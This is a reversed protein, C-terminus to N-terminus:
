AAIIEAYMAPDVNGGSLVAVVNQAKPQIKAAMLAAVAVAGSPEVTLKALMCLARMAERIEDDSVLVLEDVLRAVIEFNLVGLSSTRLGDAITNITDVRVRNGTKLSQYADAAGEPEVGVIRVDPKLAKAATAIGSILGGGGVPVVITNVSALDQLIELGVTGQGAIIREDDFSAIVVGGTERGIAQARAEREPSTTGAFEVNAGYSKVGDVKVQVAGVPMVVTVDIGLLQGAAAVAQGHNGSSSTIIREPEETEALIALTNYAGRFKFAGVRQLNEAKLYTEVGTVVDLALSHVLPTRVAVSRLRGAAKTVDSLSVTLESM